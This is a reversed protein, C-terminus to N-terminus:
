EGQGTISFTHRCVLVKILHSLALVLFFVQHDTSPFRFMSGAEAAVESDHLGCVHLHDCGGRRWAKCGKSRHEKARWAWLTRGEDFQKHGIQQTAVHRPRRLCRAANNVDRRDCALSQSATAPLRHCKHSTAKPPFFLAPGVGRVPSFRAQFVMNQAISSPHRQRYNDCRGIDIIPRHQLRQYVVLDKHSRHRSTLLWLMQAQVCGKVIGRNVFHQHPLIILPMNRRPLSPIFDQWQMRTAFSTAPYHLPQVSPM